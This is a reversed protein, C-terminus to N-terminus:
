KALNGTFVIQTRARSVAVYLLRLLMARDCVKQSIDDLDIFVKNFTSGQAKNITCAYLPRLDMFCEMVLETDAASLSFSKNLLTDRITPDNPVFYSHGSIRVLKGEVLTEGVLYKKKTVKSIHVTAETKISANRDVSKVFKNNLAYDGVKFENRGKAAQFILHNFHQVRANTFALVSSDGYEWDSRTFEAIAQQEFDAQSLHIVDASLIFKSLPQNNVIANRVNDCIAKVPSGDQQRMVQHLEVTRFGQNFVPTQLSGVPPLQAADGMFIIKCNKGGKMILKLLYDDVYSSEDIVVIMSPLPPHKKPIYSVTEPPQKSYDNFVKIGFLRHVTVAEKGTAKSLAEAAKNTTAAYAFTTSTNSVHIGLKKKLTAYTELEKELLGIVTTKGTGAKGILCFCQEDSHIFKTLEDLAHQQDSNPQVNM